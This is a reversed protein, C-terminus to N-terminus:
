SLIKLPLFKHFTTLKSLNGCCIGYVTHNLYCLSTKKIIRSAQVDLILTAAPRNQKTKNESAEKKLKGETARKSHTWMAKEKHVQGTDRKMNGTKRKKYSCLDYQILVEQLSRM